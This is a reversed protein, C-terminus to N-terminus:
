FTSSWWILVVGAKKKTHTHWWVLHFWPSICCIKCLEEVGWCFFVFLLRVVVDGLYRVTWRPSKRFFAQKRMWPIITFDITSPTKERIHLTVFFQQSSWKWRRVTAVDGHNTSKRMSILIWCWPFVGNVLMSHVAIFVKQPYHIYMQSLLNSTM